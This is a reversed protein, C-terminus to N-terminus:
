RHTGAVPSGRGADSGFRDVMEAAFGEIERETGLGALRKYLGLRLSLDEVYHEPIM